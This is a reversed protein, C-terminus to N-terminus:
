FDIFLVRHRWASSTTNHSTEFQKKTTQLEGFKHINSQLKNRLWLFQFGDVDGLTARRKEWSLSIFDTSSNM